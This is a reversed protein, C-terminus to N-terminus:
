GGKHNAFHEYGDKEKQSNMSQGVNKFNERLMFSRNRYNTTVRPINLERHNLSRLIALKIGLSLRIM